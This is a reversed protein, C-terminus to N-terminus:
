NNQSVKSNKDLEQKLLDIHKELEEKYAKEIAYSAQSNKYKTELDTYDKQLKTLQATVDSLNSSAKSTNTALLTGLVVSTITTITLSVILITTILRNRTM